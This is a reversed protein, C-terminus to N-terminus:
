KEENTWVEKVNSKSIKIVPRINYKKTPSALVYSGKVGVVMIKENKSSATWWKGLDDSALWNGDKWEYDYGLTDRVNVYEESTILRVDYINEINVLSKKYTNNLYYAINKKNEIDYEFSGDSSFEMKDKGNKKNDNNLDLTEESLLLISEESNPSDKIVYWKTDNNLLVATGIEYEEYKDTFKNEKPKIFIFIVIVIIVLAILGIIYKLNNKKKKEKKDKPKVEELTKDKEIFEKKPEEKKVVVEKKQKIPLEQKPSINKEKKITVKKSDSIKKDKTVLTTKKEKIIEKSKEKKLKNKIESNKKINKEEKQKKEYHNKKTKNSSSQEKYTKQDLTKKQPKTKTTQNLKQNLKNKKSSM